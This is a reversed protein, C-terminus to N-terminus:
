TPTPQTKLIAQMNRRSAEVGPQGYPNIGLLRGEVVTALMLMQMLQGMAHESLTPMLLDATPRAVDFYAQSTGKLAASLMDPLSKRNFQNLEDENRDAMGVVIPPQTPAKVALNNIFKDRTGEQHQQGRSHLDRTQVITLPTAGVNHKSLSESLLQDHWLGLAELKKSWIAMVRIPKKCEAHFLYNIAAYQLVPNREFPEDLFRRTMAAAGLLIARVDLNMAAAPLLGAPTFVSYRGGVDDPITLINDDGYGDAKCLARLKSAAGTVPVALCRTRPSHNGYFEALERRLIRYAVATELTDGSKSIVIMGWREERLDPDVCTIQLMQLLDNFADNDVNNGEFYIRPCGPRDKPPLDNHYSSRLAEFLARAGMSSGGIGLVVVRDVEERLRGAVNLVRGLISADGQRRHQDLLTQPLDIFGADLPQMEASATKLERETAVVSRVQMIRPILDRLRSPSLLHQARLEAAATWEESPPVLANTYDYGIAEDPLQM